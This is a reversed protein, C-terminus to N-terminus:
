NKFSYFLPDYHDSCFIEKKQADCASCLQNFFEKATKKVELNEHQFLQFFIGLESSCVLVKFILFELISSLFSLM